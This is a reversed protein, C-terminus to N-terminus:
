VFPIEFNNKQLQKKLVMKNKSRVQKNPMKISSSYDKYILKDFIINNFAKGKYIITGTYEEETKFYDVTYLNLSNDTEKIVKHFKWSSTKYIYENTISNNKIICYSDDFEIVKFIKYEYKFDLLSVKECGKNKEKDFFWTKANYSNYQRVYLSYSHLICGRSLEYKVKQIERIRDATIEKKDKFYNMQEEFSLNDFGYFPTFNYKSFLDQSLKNYKQNIEIEKDKLIFDKYLQNSECYECNKKIFQNSLRIKRKFQIYKVTHKNFVKTNPNEIKYFKNVYPSDEKLKNSNSRIEDSNKYIGKIKDKLFHNFNQKKRKTNKHNWGSLENKWLGQM